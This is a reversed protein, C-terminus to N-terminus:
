KLNEVVVSKFTGNNESIGSVLELEDHLTSDYFDISNNDYDLCIGNNTFFPAGLILQNRLSGEVKLRCENGQTRETYAGFQIPIEAGGILLKIDYNQGCEVVYQKRKPDLKAGLKRLLRSYLTNQVVIVDKTTTLIADFDASYKNGDFLVAPVDFRWYVSTSANIKTRFNKENYSHSGISILTTKISFLTKCHPVQDLPLFRGM